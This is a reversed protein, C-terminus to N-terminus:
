VSLLLEISLEQDMGAAAFQIYENLSGGVLMLPTVVELDSTATVSGVFLEGIDFRSEDGANGTLRSAEDTHM